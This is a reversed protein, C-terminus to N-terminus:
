RDTYTDASTAHLTASASDVTQALRVGVVTVTAADEVLVVASSV